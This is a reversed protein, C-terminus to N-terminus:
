HYRVQAVDDGLKQKIIRTFRSLSKGKVLDQMAALLRDAHSM